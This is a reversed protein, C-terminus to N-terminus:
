IHNIPFQRLGVDVERASSDTKPIIKCGPRGIVRMKSKSKAHNNDKGILYSTRSIDSNQV